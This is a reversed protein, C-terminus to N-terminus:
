LQLAKLLMEGSKTLRYVRNRSYEPNMCEVIGVRELERLAKRVHSLYLGTKEKLRSPTTPEQLHELILRSNKGRAVVALTDLNERIRKEM